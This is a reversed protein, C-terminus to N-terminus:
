VYRLTNPQKTHLLHLVSRGSLYLRSVFVSHLSTLVDGEGQQV